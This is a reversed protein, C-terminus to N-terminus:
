EFSTNVRMTHPAGGAPNRPSLSGCRFEREAGGRGGEQYNELALVCEAGRGDFSYIDLQRCWTSFLWVVAFVRDSVV